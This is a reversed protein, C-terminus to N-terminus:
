CIAEADNQDNKPSKIYPKVFQPSMLRVAHGPKGPERARYNNAGQAELGILRPAPNAFFPLSAKRALRKKLVTRGKGNVAHFHFVNKALDLAATTIQARVRKEEHNLPLFKGSQCMSAM